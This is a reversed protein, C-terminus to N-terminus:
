ITNSLWESDESSLCRWAAISLARAEFNARPVAWAAVARNLINGRPGGCCRKLFIEIEDQRDTRPAKYADLGLRSAAALWEGTMAVHNFLYPHPDLMDEAGADADADAATWPRMGYARLLDCALDASKCAAVRVWMSKQRRSEARLEPCALVISCCREPVIELATHLAFTRTFRCPLPLVRDLLWNIAAIAAKSQQRRVQEFAISLDFPVAAFTHQVQPLVWQAVRFTGTSRAACYLLWRGLVERPTGAERELPFSTDTLRIRYGLERMLQVGDYPCVQSDVEQPLSDLLHLMHQAQQLHGRWGAHALAHHLSFGNGDGYRARVWHIAAADCVQIATRGVDHARKADLMGLHELWQLYTVSRLLLEQIIASHVVSITALKRFEDDSCYPLIGMVVVEQPLADFWSLVAM